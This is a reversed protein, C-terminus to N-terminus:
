NVMNHSVVDKVLDLGSQDWESKKVRKRMRGGGSEEKGRCVEKTQRKEEEGVVTTDKQKNNKESRTSELSVLKWRTHLFM